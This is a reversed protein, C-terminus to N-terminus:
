HNYFMGGLKLLWKMTHITSWCDSHLQLRLITIIKMPKAPVWKLSMTITKMFITRLWVLDNTLLKFDWLWGNPGAALIEEAMSICTDPDSPWYFWSYYQLSWRPYLSPHVSHRHHMRRHHTKNMKWWQIAGNPTIPNKCQPVSNSNPSTILPANMKIGINESDIPAM